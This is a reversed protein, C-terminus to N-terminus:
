LRSGRPPHARSKKRRAEKHSRKKASIDSHLSMIPAGHNTPTAISPSTAPWPQIRMTQSSPQQTEPHHMYHINQARSLPTIGQLFVPVAPPNAFYPHNSSV